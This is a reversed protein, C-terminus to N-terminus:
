NRIRESFVTRISLAATRAAMITTNTTFIYLVRLFSSYREPAQAQVQAKSKLKEHQLVKRKKIEELSKQFVFLRRAADAHCAGLWDDM